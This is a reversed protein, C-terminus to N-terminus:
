DELKKELVTICAAVVTRSRSHRATEQADRIVSLALSSLVVIISIVMLLEILTFATRFHTAPTKM